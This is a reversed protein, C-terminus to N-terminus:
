GIKLSEIYTTAEQEIDDKILCKFGMDRELNEMYEKFEPSKSDLSASAYSSNEYFLDFWTHNPAVIKDIKTISAVTENYDYVPGNFELEKKYKMLVKETADFYSKIIKAKTKGDFDQNWPNDDNYRSKYHDDAIPYPSKKNFELRVDNSIKKFLQLTDPDDLNMLEVWRRGQSDKATYIDVNADVVVDGQFCCVAINDIDLGDAGSIFIDSDNKWSHFASITKKTGELDKLNFISHISHVHLLKRNRKGFIREFTKGSLPIDGEQIMQITAYSSNNKEQITKLTEQLLGM